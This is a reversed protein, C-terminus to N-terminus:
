RLLDLFTDPTTIPDAISSSPPDIQTGNAHYQKTDGPRIITVLIIGLIVAMITTTFYYIVARLGIRGSTASELAALGAVLSSVILPLIVIKLMNLFIDGVFSVYMVKRPDEHFGQARLGFGLAAFCSCDDWM